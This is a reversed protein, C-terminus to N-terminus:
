VAKSVALPASVQHPMRPVVSGNAGYGAPNARAAVETSIERIISESVSRATTLVAMNYTLLESFSEHRLRLLALGDPAFRGLAIANGKLNELMRTYHGAAEAKTSSLTLAERSKGERLLATEEVIVPELIDLAELAAQVILNADEANTIRPHRPERGAKTESSSLM